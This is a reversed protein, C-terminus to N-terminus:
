LGAVDWSARPLPGSGLARLLGSLWSQRKSAGSRQKQMVKAVSSLALPEHQASGLSSSLQDQVLHSTKRQSVM